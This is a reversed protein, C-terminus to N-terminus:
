NWVVGVLTLPQSSNQHLTSVTRNGTTTTLFNAGSMESLTALQVDYNETANTWLMPNAIGNTQGCVGLSYTTLGTFTITLGTGTLLSSTQTQIPTDSINNQIRWVGIGMRAVLGSFTVSINATTGSNVRLYIVGTNTFQLASPGQTIQSAITAANGNITASTITRNVGAESHITIAILGDGGIPVDNFTYTTLSATNSTFTIYDISPIDCVNWLSDEV